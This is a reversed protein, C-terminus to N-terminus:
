AAPGTVTWGANTKPYLSALREALNAMATQAEALSTGRRLRAVVALHHSERPTAAVDLQLPTWIEGYHSFHFDKPMVGVIEHVKGDLRLTRGVIRPDGAFRESWVDHSILAVLPGGPRDEEAQFNRGLFPEVGLLPFLEATVACGAIRDPEDGSQLNYDMWLFAGAGAFVPNDHTWDHFDPASVGIRSEGLTPLSAHLAVLSEPDEFPLLRLASGYFSAFFIGNAGIGLGLTLIVIASVAPRKRIM